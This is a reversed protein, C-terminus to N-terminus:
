VSFCHRLFGFGFVLVVVVVVVFEVWINTKLSKRGLRTRSVAFGYGLTLKHM